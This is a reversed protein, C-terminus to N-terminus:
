YAPELEERSERTLFGTETISYGCKDFYQYLVEFYPLKELEEDAYCQPIKVGRFAGFSGLMKKGLLTDYAEFNLELTLDSFKMAYKLVEIFGRSIEGYVPRADVIKSDKTIDLWEKSLQKQNVEEGKSILALVHIHPHWGNGKNTIEYSYVAGHLKCLENFGQYRKFYNRRRSQYLRFSRELHEYRERLDNGNKVTLTVMVLTYDPNEKLILEYRDMYSKVHKASRRIACMPCLKHKKCFSAKTLRVKGVTFYNKFLLYNACGDITNALKNLSERRSGGAENGKRAIFRSMSAARKKAKSYRAIREPLRSTEDAGKSVESQVTETALPTTKEGAM